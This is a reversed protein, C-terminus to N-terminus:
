STPREVCMGLRRPCWAGVRSKIREDMGEDDVSIVKRDGTLKDSWKIM